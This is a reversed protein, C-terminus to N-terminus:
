KVDHVSLKVGLAPLRAFNLESLMAFSYLALGPRYLHSKRMGDLGICSVIRPQHVYCTENSQNVSSLEVPREGM